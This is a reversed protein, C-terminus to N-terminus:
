MRSCWPCAWFTGTFGMCPFLLCHTLRTHFHSQEQSPIFGRYERRVQHGIRHNGTEKGDQRQALLSPGALPWCSPRPPILIDHQRMLRKLRKPSSTQEECHKLTAKSDAKLFSPVCMSMWEPLQWSCSRGLTAGKGWPEGSVPRCEDKQKMWSAQLSWSRKEILDSGEVGQAMPSARGTKLVLNLLSHTAWTAQEALLFGLFAIPLMRQTSRQDPSFSLPPCHVVWGSPPNEAQLQQKGTHAWLTGGWRYSCM